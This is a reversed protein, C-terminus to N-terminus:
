MGQYNCDYGQPRYKAGGPIAKMEDMTGGTGYYVKDIYTGSSYTYCGKTTYVGKGGFSFGMNNAANRCASEDYPVCKLGVFDLTM